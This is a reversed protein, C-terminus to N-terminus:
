KLKLALRKFVLRTRLRWESLNDRKLARKRKLLAQHSAQVRNQKLLAKILGRAETSALLNDPLTAIYETLEREGLVHAFNSLGHFGFSKTIDGCRETAFAHATTEDAFRIGFDRELTPRLDRCILMDEAKSAAPALKALAELLKSSRLSFGGNGVRHPPEFQPWPAGIYDFALFDPRWHEPHIIYGDWQVILVHSTRIHDALGTLMFQSYAEVSRIHSADVCRIRSDLQAPARKLDTFLIADGFQAQHLCTHMARAAHEPLQTDVCCLTVDSLNLTDAM